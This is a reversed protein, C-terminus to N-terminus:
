PLLQDRVQPLRSELSRDSTAAVRHHPSAGSPHGDRVRVLPLNGNDYVEGIGFPLEPVGLAARVKAIFDTLLTQYEGEPLGADSEGQHWIMGRVTYTDGRDALTKLSQAVFAL